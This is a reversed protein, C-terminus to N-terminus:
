DDPAETLEFASEDPGEALRTMFETPTGPFHSTIRGTYGVRYYSECHALTSADLRVDLDQNYKDTVDARVELSLAGRKRVLELCEAIYRAHDTLVSTIFPIQSNPGDVLYFNPFNPVLMGLYATPGEAWQDGLRRGNQGVVESDNLWSNTEYGTALVIVDAPYETGDSAVAATETLASLRQGVVSVHPQVIAPYYDNSFLARRCGLSYQPTLVDRLDPDVVVSDFYERWTDTGKETAKADFPFRSRASKDYYRTWHDRKATLLGPDDRFSAKESEDYVEEPKPFVHSPTPVFTIVERARAVAWPLVQIATAGGGVVVVRRDEIDVGEDPWNASHFLRGQFRDQGPIPRTDPQSFRGVAAIVTSPHWTDGRTTTVEWRSGAEDWVAATVATGTVLHQDLGGEAAVRRLYDLIESGPAFNSSWDPNPAFDYSYLQVPTDCAVNPYRHRLWTGGFGTDRDVIVFDDFGRSKLERGVAIGGLGGGIVVIGPTDTGATSM